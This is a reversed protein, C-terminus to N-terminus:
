GRRLTSLGTSEEASGYRGEPARLNEPNLAMQIAVAIENQTCPKALKLIRFKAPDAPLEAFGTALIIPLGPYREQITQALQLGTMNPMAHDTIVIDVRADPGALMSLAEAGSHAEIATHGLDDVLAATGTLVLHDDDVILVRCAKSALPSPKLREVNRGAAAPVVKARPLWLQVTTGVNPASDIRM